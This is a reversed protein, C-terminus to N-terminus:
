SQTKKEATRKQSPIEKKIALAGYFEELIMDALEFPNIDIEGIITKADVEPAEKRKQDAEYQLGEEIMLPLAFNVAKLSPETKTYLKLGDENIRPEGNKDLLLKRGSLKREFEALTGYEEQIEALVSNSCRYPYKKGSLTLTKTKNM